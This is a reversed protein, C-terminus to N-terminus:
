VAAFFVSFTSGRGPDSELDLRGGVATVMARVLALGVGFGPHHKHRLPEVQVFPEFVRERDAAAIGPGTDSVALRHGRAYSSSLTVSGTDTFKIANALLHFLITRVLQRDSVLPPMLSPGARYELALKKRAAQGGLEEVLEVGITNVDFSELHTELRGAELESYDLLSQVLGRLREAAAAIGDVMKKQPASLQGDRDRQLRELQIVLTTIPTRLEHSFMGLLTTKLQNMREAYGHAQRLSELAAHLDRRHTAIEVALEEVSRRRSQLETQLVDRVRKMTVLNRVRALIEAPSCPKVVYDQAERLMEVRLAADEQGTLVIVPTADLDPHARVAALLEIGTMRPMVVDSVILDPRLELAKELGERGDFAAETRYEAALTAVVFRNMQLNDEVVLILPKSADGIPTVTASPRLEPATPRPLPIARVSATVYGAVVGPLTRTDIPKPIYGDCGAARAKDEDGRMAFATLAIVTIDATLPDAKLRRTVELGDMDPLQIDMLILRPRERAVAAFTSRADAATAVEYGECALVAEILQLNVDNDDVVLIREGAV